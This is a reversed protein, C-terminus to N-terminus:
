KRFQCFILGIGAFVFLLGAFGYAYLFSAFLFLLVSFIKGVIDSLTEARIPDSFRAILLFLLRGGDLPHIPLFNLAATVVNAGSLIYFFETHIMGSLAAFVFGFFLNSIPGAATVLMERGYSLRLFQSSVIEAGFAGVRVREIPVRFIGM